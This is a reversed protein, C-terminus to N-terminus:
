VIMLSYDSTTESWLKSPDRQLYAVLFYQDERSLSAKLFKQHTKLALEIVENLTSEFIKQHKSAQPRSDKSFQSKHRDSLQPHFQCNSAQNAYKNRCFTAEVLKAFNFDHSNNM